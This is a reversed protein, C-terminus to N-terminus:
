LFGGREDAFHHARVLVEQTCCDLLQNLICVFQHTCDDASGFGGILSSPSRLDFPRLTMRKQNPKLRRLFRKVHERSSHPFGPKWVWSAADKSIIRFPPCSGPPFLILGGDYIGRLNRM